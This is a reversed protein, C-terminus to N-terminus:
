YSGCNQFHQMLTVATDMIEFYYFCIKFEYSIMLDKLPALLSALTYDCRAEVLVDLWKTGRFAAGQLLTAM